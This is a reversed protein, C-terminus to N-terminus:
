SELASLEVPEVSVGKRKLWRIGSEIEAADGIVELCVIGLSETVSAQRINTMLKFEHGLSWILPERIQASPYTLWFRLTKPGSPAATRGSKASETSQASADPPLRSEVPRKTGATARTKKATSMFNEEVVRLPRSSASRM